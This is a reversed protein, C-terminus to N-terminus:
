CPSHQVPCERPGPESGWFGTHRDRRLLFWEGLKRPGLVVAGMVRPKRPQDGRQGTENEMHPILSTESFPIIPPDPEEGLDM